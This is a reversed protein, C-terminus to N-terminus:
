ALANRTFLGQTANSRVRWVSPAFGTFRHISRSLHALDSFGADVAIDTLSRTSTVIKAWAQRTRVELRFLKPSVGFDRRFAQSVVDPRIGNCTAWSNMTISPDATLANALLETWRAAQTAVPQLGEALATVAETPDRECLRVLTDPDPSRFRGEKHVSAWPLRLIQLTHRGRAVDMHCDFPGHLLVDGPEAVMRGAFSTEIVSGSLIITAYGELHRHRPRYTCGPLTEVGASVSRFEHSRHM